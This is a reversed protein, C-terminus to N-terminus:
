SLLAFLRRRRRLREVLGKANPVVHRVAAARAEPDPKLELYEVLRDIQRAPDSMLDAYDIRLHERRSFFWNLEAWLKRQVAESEKWWGVRRLSDVSDTLPRHCWVFRTQPGWAQELDRGCLSLLPHKAGVWPAGDRRRIWQRLRAVRERQPIQEELKPENWWSRLMEALEASEFYEHFYPAGLDAGLHHIAGAVATSGSRYLGM